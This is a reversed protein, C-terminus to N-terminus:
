LQICRFHQWGDLYICTAVAMKLAIDAAFLKPFIFSLIPLIVLSSGAGMAAIITGGLAGTLLYIIYELM